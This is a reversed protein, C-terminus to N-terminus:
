VNYRKLSSAVNEQLLFGTFHSYHNVDDYLHSGSVVNVINIWVQDGMKLELTSQLAHTYFSSDDNTDTASRGIQNGNLMLSLFIDIRGASSPYFVIGSFQFSYVGNRPATFIGSSADM